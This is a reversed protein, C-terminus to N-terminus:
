ELQEDLVNLVNRESEELYKKINSAITFTEFKLEYGIVLREDVKYDISLSDSIKESLSRELRIKDDATLEEASTLTLLREQEEAIAGSDDIAHHDLTKIKEIFAEFVLEKLDLDGIAILIHDALKVANEVLSKGLADSFQEKEGKLDNLFAIRKEQAEDKYSEILNEKIQLAEKRATQLIKEEALETNKLKQEYSEILDEAEQLKQDAHSLSAAIEDERNKMMTLVPKYLLKKLIILLIGFNIIQAVIEFWNIEM